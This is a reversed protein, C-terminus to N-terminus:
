KSKKGAEKVSGSSIAKIAVTLENFRRDLAGYEKDKPQMLSLKGLVAQRETELQLLDVQVDGNSKNNWESFSSEYKFLKGEEFVLLKDALKEMFFRDHTAVLLTGPFSELTKELQERSPLDLHNTPEDLLLVNCESLMFEMLKLKVREGMSLHRIPETWHHKEFGLNDMLTRIKGNVEYSGTGFLEAPTKQEPLDFVNQSLYGIKMGATMWIEGSYDTEKRLMSFFTSKGSGNKGVLGVREGHQVTFTANEFLLRDGYAKSVEKLEMVRKGKKDASGIEFKIGAEEKPREVGEKELEAELRKRKSRVQVDMRKAKSRYFEKFGDQKTSDAHAKGSWSQLESLQQEVRAIKAQQQNYKRQQTLKRHEKEERSVSYNGKYVTLKEDEIEWIQTAVQDIFHRDHSVILLAGDYEALQKVVAGISEADLHNTPEDLLLVEANESLTRALRMKMAEGGSLRVRVSPVHWEKELKRSAADSVGADLREVEQKMYAVSPLSGMWQIGPAGEAIADLLSSKGSGNAGIVAIRAGKPIDAQAERLVIREEFGITLKNVKGIVAM